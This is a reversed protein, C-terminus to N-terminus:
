SNWSTTDIWKSLSARLCSEDFPMLILLPILNTTNHRYWSSMMWCTCCMIEEMSSTTPGCLASPVIMLELFSNQRATLNANYIYVPNGPLIDTLGWATMSCRHEVVTCHAEIVMLETVYCIVLVAVQTYLPATIRRAFTVYVIIKVWLMM